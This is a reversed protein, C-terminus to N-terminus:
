KLQGDLELNVELVNVLPEGALGLLPTFAKATLV